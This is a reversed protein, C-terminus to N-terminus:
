QEHRTLAEAMAKQYQNDAAKEDVTFRSPVTAQQQPNNKSFISVNQTKEQDVLNQTNSIQGNSLLDFPTPSSKRTLPQKKQFELLMLDQEKAAVKAEYVAKKSNKAARLRIQSLQDHKQLQALDKRQKEIMDGHTFPFYNIKDKTRNEKLERKLKANEERMLANERVFVDQKVARDDMENQLEEIM